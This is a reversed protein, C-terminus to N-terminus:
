VCIKNNYISHPSCNRSMSHVCWWWRCFFSCTNIPLCDLRKEVFCVFVIVIFHLSYHSVYVNLWTKYRKNKDSGNDFVRLRKSGCIELFLYTYPSSKKRKMFIINKLRFLRKHYETNVCSLVSTFAEKKDFYRESHATYM